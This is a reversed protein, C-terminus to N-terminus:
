LAEQPIRIGGTAAIEYIATRYALSAPSRPAYLTVPLGAAPAEAARQDKPIAVSIATGPHATVLDRHVDQALLTKAEWRSMLARVPATLGLTRCSDMLKEMGALSQFESIVPIVVVSAARLATIVTSRRRDPPTDVVVIDAVAACRAVHAAVAAESADDMTDGGRYLWLEGRNLLPHIIRVPASTLPDPSPPHGLGMTTAYADPDLDVIAVRYRRALLGCTALASTSKAVGGKGSCFTIIM